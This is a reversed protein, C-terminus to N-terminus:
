ESVIEETEEERRSKFILIQMIVHREWQSWLTKEEM